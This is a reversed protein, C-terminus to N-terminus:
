VTQKLIKPTVFILLERKNKKFRTRKFLVGILPARSIFPIGQEANERNTEYIGGLVVTQGNKILVNSVIQRTRITPVGLVMRDSPRDQNIKLQLLVFGGPLVQPTVQLGLVAKKFVMATGGSESVEQYPVEEGAEISAQQQNATFLSPSSILEAHGAEELAALRIDLGGHALKAIMVGRGITTFDMGLEREVDNDVSALRAEILIQKVPVDLRHILQNAQKIREANDRICIINTRVDVHIQGRKSLISAQKNIFLRAIEDAKSFYIQWTQTMLPLADESLENWKIQNRKRKMLEEENAIYWTNGLESKALGHSMLLIDIAQSPQANQLHLNTTGHVSPSIIVNIKLFKAIFRITEVLSAEQLDLTLTEAALSPTNFLLICCSIVVIMKLATMGRGNNATMGRSTRLIWKVVFRMM